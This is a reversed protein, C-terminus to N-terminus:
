NYMELIENDSFEPFNERDKKLLWDNRRDRYVLSIGANELGEIIETAKNLDGNEIAQDKENLLRQILNNRMTLLTQM